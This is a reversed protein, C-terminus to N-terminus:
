CNYFNLLKVNFYSFIAMNALEFLLYMNRLLINSLDSKLILSVTPKKYFNASFVLQSRAIPIDSALSLIHNGSLRVLDVKVFFFILPCDLNFPCSTLGLEGRSKLDV